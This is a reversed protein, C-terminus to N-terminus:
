FDERHTAMSRAAMTAMMVDATTAFAVCVIVVGLAAKMEYERAAKVLLAAIVGAVLRETSTM